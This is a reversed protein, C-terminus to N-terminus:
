QSKEGGGHQASYYDRAIRLRAHEARDAQGGVLDRITNLDVPGEGAQALFRAARIVQDDLATGRASTLRLLRNESYRAAFLARGVRRGPAHPPLAATGSLVAAVHAILRWRSFAADSRWGAEAVGARHLLGIVVGDADASGTLMMRRLAARDGTSLYPIQGALSAVADKKPAPEPAAPTPPAPDAITSADSAM